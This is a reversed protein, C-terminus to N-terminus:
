NAWGTGTAADIPLELAVMARSQMMYNGISFILEAIQRPPFAERMREFTPESVHVGLILEDTFQVVLRERDDFLDEGALGRNLADIQADSLGAEKALPVHQTWEYQAGSLYATRLFALEKLSREIEMKTLAAGALDMVPAFTDPSLAAARFVNLVTEMGELRERVEPAM